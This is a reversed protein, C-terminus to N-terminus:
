ADEEGVYFKVKERMVTRCFPCRFFDSYIFAITMNFYDYKNRPIQNACEACITHGCPVLVLTVLNSVCIQCRMNAASKFLASRM